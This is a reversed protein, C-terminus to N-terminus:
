GADELPQKRPRGPGRRPAEVVDGNQQAQKMQTAALAAAVGEAIADALGSPTEMEKKRAREDARRQRREIVAAFAEAAARDKPDAPEMTTPSVLLPDILIEDADRMVNGASDYSEGFFMECLAHGPSAPVWVRQRPRIRVRIPDAPERKRLENLEEIKM